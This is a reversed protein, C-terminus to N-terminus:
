CRPLQILTLPDPQAPANVLFLQGDPTVAYPPFSYSSFDNLLTRFLTRPQGQQGGRLLSAVDQAVIDDAPSLYFLEQGDHRWLPHTGGAASLRVPPATGDIRRVYVEQRGTSNAVYAIWRGDPSFSGQEEDYSTAAFPTTTGDVLNLILLDTSPANSARSATVLITRRDPSADIPTLQREKFDVVKKPQGEGSSPQMWIAGARVVIVDRDDASWIGASNDTVRTKLMTRRDITFLGGVNVLARQSDHSLRMTWYREASGLMGADHGNRDVWRLTSIPDAQLALIKRGAVSVAFWGLPAGAHDAVPTVPGELALTTDNFAQWSLLNAQNFVLFGSGYGVYGNGTAGLELVKVPASKGDLTAAYVTRDRRFLFRRGDALWVPRSGGVGIAVEQPQGGSAPVRFIGPEAVKNDDFLIEDNVSWSAKSHRGITTAITRAPGGDIPVSQLKFDSAM